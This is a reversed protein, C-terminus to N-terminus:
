ENAEAKKWKRYLAQPNYGSVKLLPLGSKTMFQPTIRCQCHAHYHGDEGASKATKYVYGRSALMLCFKCTEGGAPIRAYRVREPDRKGNEYITEASARKVDYELRNGMRKIYNKLDFEDADADYDRWAGARVYVKTGETDYDITRAKFGDSIGSSERLYDYYKAAIESTLKAGAKVHRSVIKQTADLFDHPNSLDPHSEFYKLLDRELAARSAKTVKADADNFAELIDLSITAAM